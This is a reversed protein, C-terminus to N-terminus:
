RRRDPWDQRAAISDRASDHLNNWEEMQPELLVGRVDAAALLERAGDDGELEQLRPYMSRAFLAPAGLRGDGASAAYDLEPAEALADVLRAIQRVCPGPRGEVAVLLADPDAPLAANMGCRLSFSQGLHATFCTEARWARGSAPAPLWELPDDASVVVIVPDIGSVAMAQLADARGAEDKSSARAGM